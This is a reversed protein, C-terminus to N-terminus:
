STFVREFYLVRPHIVVPQIEFGLRVARIYYNLVGPPLKLLKPITLTVANSKKFLKAQTRATAIFMGYVAM